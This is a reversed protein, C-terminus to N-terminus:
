HRGAVCAQAIALLPMSNMERHLGQLTCRHLIGSSCNAVPVDMAVLVARNVHRNRDIKLKQKVMQCLCSVGMLVTGHLLDCFTPSIYSILAYVLKRQLHLASSPHFPSAMSASANSSSSAVPSLMAQM